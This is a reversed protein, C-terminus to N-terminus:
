VGSKVVLGGGVVRAGGLRCHGAHGPRDVAVARRGIRCGAGSGVVASRRGDGEVLSVVPIPLSARVDARSRLPPDITVGHAIMGVSAAVALAALLAGLPWRAPGSGAERKEGSEPAVALETEIRPPRSAAEAAQRERAALREVEEGAAQLERQEAASRRPWRRNAVAPEAARDDEPPLPPLSRVQPEPAPKAAPTQRPISEMEREVRAIQLEVLQVEPHLPTRDALLDRRQRKLQELQRNREIWEPNELAM